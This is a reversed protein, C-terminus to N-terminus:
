GAKLTEVEDALEQIAKVMLSIQNTVNVGIKPEPKILPKALRGELEAIKRIFTDQRIKNRENPLAEKFKVLLARLKKRRKLNKKHMEDREKYDKETPHILLEPPFTERDWEDFEGQGGAAEVMKRARSGMGEKGVDELTIFRKKTKMALLKELPNLLIPVPCGRDELTKYNVANFYYTASGLDMGAAEAPRLRTATLELNVAEIYFRDDAIVQVDDDACLFLDDAAPSPASKGGCITTGYTGGGSILMDGGTGILQIGGQSGTSILLQTATSAKIFGVNYPGYFFRLREGLIDLGDSSLVVNGGGAYIKGDAGVYCQITGTKTARTTLANAVGYINIGHTADIDVGSESYWLGDVLTLSSLTIKGAEIDTIKETHEDITSRLSLPFQDILEVKETYYNKWKTNWTTRSITTTSSMDDFVHLTTNLYTNLASYAADYATRSVGFEDATADLESKEAQIQEWERKVVKKEHPEVKNDAAIDELEALAAEADEAAGAWEAKQADSVTRYISSQIVSSLLIHGASIDTRNILAYQGSGYDIWVNDLIVLGGATLASSKARQYIAGEPIDDLTDDGLDFKTTPDYDSKYWIHEDLKIQGVDIHLSKVKAYVEGDPLSDLDDGIKDLDINSDPDLWYAKIRDIQLDKVTLSLFDWEPSNTELDDLLKRVSLWGGFSFRMPYQGPKYTRTLTGINGVRYDSEREDTVKVYDFVEQALNMPVEAAGMEAWLQHKSLVAAAINNAQDNSELSMQKYETKPLLAYSTPDTAEGQYFPDDDPNSQVVIRNPIVLAKRHSQAFFTHGTELSYQYDYIAGTITPQFIHAKGDAKFIMVCKTLDLLRRIHALRSSNIAIRFSDKPKYSDIVSDLDGWVITYPTCHNYCALTAGLLKTLLTKITWEWGADEQLPIYEANAKDQSLLNPIGVMRLECTLRGPSSNLEQHVVWLPATDSYENGSTTVLGYSIVAKFGKLDLATLVGDSNDLVADASHCYPEEEHRISLIRDQEYVYQTANHTLTIKIKPELSSAQQATKLTDSLTRM